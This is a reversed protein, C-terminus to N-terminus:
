NIKLNRFRYNYAELSGIFHFLAGFFVLVHFIQHSAGFYDFKGPFKKEPFRLIYFLAGIVYSIGGLYWNLLIIDDGYGEIYNGFFAMHIIPVGSCLGFILYLTGRLARRKPKNFDDTLSYLFTGVGFVTILILYLYKFLSSYYFFLLIASLM